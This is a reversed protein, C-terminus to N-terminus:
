DHVLAIIKGPKNQQKYKVNLKEFLIDVEYAAKKLM